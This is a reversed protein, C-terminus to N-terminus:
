RFITFLYVAGKDIVKNYWVRLSIELPNKFKKM